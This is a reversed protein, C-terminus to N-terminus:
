YGGLHCKGAGDSDRPDGVQYYLPLPCEDCRAYRVSGIIGSDGEEGEDDGQWAADLRAEATRGLM